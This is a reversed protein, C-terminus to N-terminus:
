IIQVLGLCLLLLFALCCALCRLTFGDRKSSDDAPIVRSNDGVLALDYARTTSTWAFSSWYLGYTGQSVPSTDRRLGSLIFHPGATDTM